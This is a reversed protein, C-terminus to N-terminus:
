RSDARGNSYDIGRHLRVLTPNGPAESRRYRAVWRLLELRLSRHWLRADSVKANDLYEHIEGTLTVMPLYLWRPTVAFALKDAACLRSVPQHFRKAFSRSHFLCFHAWSQGEPQYGWVRDCFRSLAGFLSDDGARDFLQWMIRSGLWVHQEGEARDINPSEFYGLDHVAFAIWLRPDCPFQFLRTWALAIAFPHILFCHAGFFLSKTGLQM